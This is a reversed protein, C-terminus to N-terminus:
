ICTSNTEHTDKKEPIYQRMVRAPVGGVLCHAPVSQKVVAGAGVVAQEGIEVGQLITAGAGIYAGRCIRIPAKSTQITNALPSKGVDTHTIFTVRMSVTVQDEIQIMDKLDFFVERGFYCDNGIRLNVYHQGKHSNANHIVLPSHIELNSGIVAGHQELVPQIMKAPLVLLLANVGEIRYAAYAFKYLFFFFVRVLSKL